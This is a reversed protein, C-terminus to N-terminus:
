NELTLVADYNHEINILRDMSFKDLLLKNQFTAVALEHSGKELDVSLEYNCFKWIRVIDCVNGEDLTLLVRLGDVYVAVSEVETEQSTGLYLNLNYKGKHATLFKLAVSDGPDELRVVGYSTDTPKTSSLLVINENEDSVIRYGEEFQWYGTYGLRENLEDLTSLEPRFYNMHWIFDDNYSTTQPRRERWSNDKLTDRAALYGSSKTIEVIEKNWEGLPYAFTKIEGYGREELIRKSEKLQIVIEEKNRRETIFGGATLAHSGIENGAAYIDDLQEWTLYRTPADLKEVIIYFTAVANYKELIPLVRSHANDFGDDFTLVCANKPTKINALIFNEMLESVTIWKCGMVETAYRIQKEFDSVHITPSTIEEEDAFVAHYGFIPVFDEQVPVKMTAGEEFVSPISTEVIGNLSQFTGIGNVSFEFKSKLESNSSRLALTQTTDNGYLFINLDELESVHWKDGDYNLNVAKSFTNRSQVRQKLKWGALTDEVYSSGIITFDKVVIDKYYKGATLIFLIVIGFLVIYEKTTIRPAM